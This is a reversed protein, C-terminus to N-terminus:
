FRMGAGVVIQHRDTDVDFKHSDPGGDGFDFKADEYKSYRYELKAFANRGIAQEVGAGVRWGDLKFKAGYDVDDYNAQAKLQANTYGGKVYVLTSPAVKAGIRAGVYIDRGAKVRGYGFDALEGNRFRTKATSDTLEAEAGVVVGGLDADYGVGIGYLLGDMSNNHDYLDDISSGAKTKDYGLIAEVRPGTFTSGDDEQALAPTAVALVSGAAAIALFKKMM